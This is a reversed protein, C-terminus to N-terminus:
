SAKEFLLYILQDIFFSRQKILFAKSLDNESIEKTSEQIQNVLFEVSLKYGGKSNM